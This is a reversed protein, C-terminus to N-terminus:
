VKVGRDHNKPVQPEETVNTNKLITLRKGGQEDRLDLTKNGKIRHWFYFVTAPLNTRLRQM